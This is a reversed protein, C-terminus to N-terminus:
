FRNVKMPEDSPLLGHFAELYNPLGVKKAFNNMRNMYIDIVIRQLYKYYYRRKDGKYNVYESCIDAAENYAELHTM